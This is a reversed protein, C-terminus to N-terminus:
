HVRLICAFLLYYPLMRISSVLTPLTLMINNRCPLLMLSTLHCFAASFLDTISM